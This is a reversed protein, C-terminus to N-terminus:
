SQDIGLLDCLIRDRHQHKVAPSWKPDYLPGPNQTPPSTEIRVSIEAAYEASQEPLQCSVVEEECVMEPVLFESQQDDYIEEETSINQVFVQAPQLQHVSQATLATPLVFQNSDDDNETAKQVVVVETKSRIKAPVQFKPDPNRSVSKSSSSPVRLIVPGKKSPIVQSFSSASDDRSSINQASINQQSSKPTIETKHQTVAASGYRLCQELKSQGQLPANYTPQRSVTPVHVETSVSAVPVATATPGPILLVQQGNIQALFAPKTTVIRNAPNSDVVVRQQVAPAYRLQITAPGPHHTPQEKVASTDESIKKVTMAVGSVGPPPRAGFEPLKVPAPQEKDKETIPTIESLFM